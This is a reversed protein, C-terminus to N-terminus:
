RVSIYEKVKKETESYVTKNEASFVTHNPILFNLEEQSIEYKEFLYQRFNNEVVESKRHFNRRENHFSPSDPIQRVTVFVNHKENVFEFQTETEGNEQNYEMDWINHNIDFILSSDVEGDILSILFKEIEEKSDYSSHSKNRAITTDGIREANSNDYISIWYKVFDERKVTVLSFDIFDKYTKENLM